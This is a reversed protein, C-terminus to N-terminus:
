GKHEYEFWSFYVEVHDTMPAYRYCYERNESENRASPQFALVSACFNSEKTRTELRTSFFRNTLVLFEVFLHRNEIIKM